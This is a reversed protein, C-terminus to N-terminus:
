QAPPTSPPPQRLARLQLVSGILETFVFLLLIGPAGGFVHFGILGAVWVRAAADIMALLRSPQLLRASAWLLGLVGALNVFFWQLAVFPPLAAGGGLAGNVTFLVQMFWHASRPFALLGTVLLDFAACGRIVRIASRSLM